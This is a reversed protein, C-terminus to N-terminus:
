LPVETMTGDKEWKYVKRFRINKEQLLRIATWIGEGRLRLSYGCGKAEMWRPTRQLNFSFGGRRLVSEGSQAPTVSPFTIMYNEM